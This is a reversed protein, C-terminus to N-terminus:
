LLEKAKSIWNEFFTKTKGTLLREKALAYGETFSESKDCLWLLAGANLRVAESVAGEKGDLLENLIKLNHTADGGKLQALEAKIGFTKPDVTLEKIDPGDIVLADTVASPSIEDLGDRSHVIMGKHCGLKQLAGAMPRLFDRAGVGILQIEPFIPNALPGLLNFITRVGLAKRVPMVHKMLPHFQPAFFFTFGEKELLRAAAEPKLEAPFGAEFLLDASGCKSSVSRNGHKAMTVGCSAAVIASATSINFTHAGDGGTGVIDILPTRSTTM